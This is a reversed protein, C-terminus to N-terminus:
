YISSGAGLQANEPYPVFDDVFGPLARVRELWAEVNAPVEVPAVSTYAFVSLDAISAAEGVLWDRAALHADLVELAGRGTALRRAVQAETARGTALLFRPGGLGGMVREQEFALWQAVWGRELRGDPLWVTGEALYWLIANSQTIREGGDLELVPTERVPNIMAYECTLTDGAFIDVPVREYEVGLMGLLLRVKFCNGSAAYDYLRM